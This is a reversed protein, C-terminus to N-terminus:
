LNAERYEELDELYIDGFAIFNVGTSIYKKLIDEM